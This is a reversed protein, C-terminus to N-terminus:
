NSDPQPEQDGEARKHHFLKDVARRMFNHKKKTEEAAPTERASDAPTPANDSTSPATSPAAAPPAPQPAAPGPDLPALATRPADTIPAPTTSVLKANAPQAQAPRTHKVRPRATATVPKAPAAPTEPATVPVSVPPQTSPVVLEPGNNGRPVTQVITDGAPLLAAPQKRPTRRLGFLALMALALAVLAIGASQRTLRLPPLPKLRPIWKRERVPPEDGAVLANRLRMLASRFEHATRFRQAPEKKLARALIEELTAPLRPDISRPPVPESEVQARMLDFSTTGSVPKAGTALEYLVTGLSYLDSRSDVETAGRVQEPSMYAPSGAPTGPAAGEGFSRALGFDTLKVKGERTVILNGPAIDRHVVGNAHAYALAALAQCSYDLAKLLPVRGQALMRDLSLGEVLEMVLFLEGGIRFATHVAAINPHHLNAQLQIEREFREAGADNPRTALVKMAEVRRTITHEVRFVRGMGGRGLLSLIRYPGVTQGTDLIM